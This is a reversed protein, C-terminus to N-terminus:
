WAILTRRLRIIEWNQFMESYLKNTRIILTAAGLFAYFHKHARLTKRWTEHSVELTTYFKEIDFYAFRSYFKLHSHNMTFKIANINNNSLLQQKDIREVGKTVCYVWCILGNVHTRFALTNTIRELKSLMVGFSRKM